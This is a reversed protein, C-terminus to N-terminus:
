FIIWHLIEQCNIYLLTTRTYLKYMTMYCSLFLRVYSGYSVTCLIRENVVNYISFSYSTLVQLRYESVFVWLFEWLSQIQVIKVWNEWKSKWSNFLGLLFAHYFELMRSFFRKVVIKM